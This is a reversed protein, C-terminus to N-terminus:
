APFVTFDYDAAAQTLQTFRDAFESIERIPRVYHQLAVFRARNM